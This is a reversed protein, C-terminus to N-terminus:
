VTMRNLRIALPFVPTELSRGNHGSVICDRSFMGLDALNTNEEGPFLGKIRVVHWILLSPEPLYEFILRTVELNQLSIFFAAM